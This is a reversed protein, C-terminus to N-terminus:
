RLEQLYDLGATQVEWQALCNPCILNQLFTNGKLEKARLAHNNPCTVTVYGVGVKIPTQYDM